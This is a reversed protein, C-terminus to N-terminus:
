PHQVTSEKPYTLGTQGLVHNWGTPWEHATTIVWGPSTPRARVIKGPLTFEKEASAGKLWPGEVKWFVIGYRLPGGSQASATGKMDWCRVKWYYM